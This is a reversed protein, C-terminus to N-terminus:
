LRMGNPSNAVVPTIECPRRWHIVAIGNPCAASNGSRKRFEKLAASVENWVLSPTLLKRAAARVFRGHRGASLSEFSESFCLSVSEVNSYTLVCHFFTHDFRQGAIKVGLENCVTFDSAALRGPWCHQNAQLKRELTGNRAAARIVAAIGGPIINRVSSFRRARAMCAEGNTSADNLHAVRPIQFSM